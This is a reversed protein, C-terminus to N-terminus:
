NYTMLLEQLRVKAKEYDGCMQYYNIASAKEGLCEKIVGANYYALYSNVGIARVAELKTAKMFQQVAEEFYGNNMYILGMLFCFDASYGFEEQVGELLLATRERGCNLLAYGYTEVLDVVYELRPNVDNKLACDFYEVAKEYNGAMYYSKGLQYLLYTDNPNEKLEILLLRANREAKKRREEETGNYGDHVVELKTKYMKYSVNDTSVTEMASKAIIQEHIKGEYHFLKRNFIRNIWEVNEITEGNRTVANIRKIRGVAGPNEMLQNYLLSPNFPKLYEDSDLVLIMENSAKSIAYNKAAAFDDIWEFFYLKDTFELVMSKTHDTSGTDVVIVEFDYPRLASLCRKLKECENKTIICVSLQM